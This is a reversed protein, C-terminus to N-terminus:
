WVCSINNIEGGGGGGGNRSLASKSNSRSSFSSSYKVSYECDRFEEFNTNMKEFDSKGGNVAIVYKESNVATLLPKIFVKNEERLKYPVGTKYSITTVTRQTFEKKPHLSKTSSHKYTEFGFSPRLFESEKVSLKRRSTTKYETESLNTSYIRSSHSLRRMNPTKTTKIQTGM